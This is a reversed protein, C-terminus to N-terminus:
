TQGPGGNDEGQAGPTTGSGADSGGVEGGAGLGGGGSTGGVGVDQDATGRGGDPIPAPEGGAPLGGGSRRQENLQEDHAM